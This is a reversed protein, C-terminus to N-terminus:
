DVDVWGRERFTIIVDEVNDVVMSIAGKDAIDRLTRDQLQTTNSVKGLAKVEIAFFWGNVHGIIDPIGHTSYAGGIPMFFWCDSVTKLYAKIKDKVKGEPTMAM